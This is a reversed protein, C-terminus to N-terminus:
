GNEGSSKGKNKRKAARAASSAAVRLVTEANKPFPMAYTM